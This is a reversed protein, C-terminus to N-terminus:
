PLISDVLRAVLRGDVLHTDVLEDADDERAHRYFVGDPYVVMAPGEGCRGMCSTRTVKVTRDHGLLKLRRRLNSVLNLSGKDACDRNTCVFVHRTLPAHAHAHPMARGHTDLHRVSWLLSRLGGVQDRVAGVPVRYQCTDCALAARGALADDARERAVQLVRPDAGLPEALSSAIWPSTRKLTALAERLQELIRGQFLLYPVVVIRAPRARAAFELSEALSPRTVGAFCADVRLYPAREAFLRVLKAFDANADADSSGRGVVLVATTAPDAGALATRVREAILDALRADVGLAPAAVLAAHPARARARAMALPLDNKVHSAGFLVAPVLVVKAYRAAAEALADDLLPAALEVFAHAVDHPASLDARYVEVWDLFAQNAQPDRSGHGVILHLTSARAVLADPDAM